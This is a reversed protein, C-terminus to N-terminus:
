WGYNFLNLQNSMLISKRIRPKRPLRRFRQLRENPFYISITEDENPMRDGYRIIQRPELQRLMEEYGKLWLYKSLNYGRIATCNVAIISHKPIGAFSYSYSDPLSWTVNPIVNVGCSQWHVTLTRNRWANYYREDYTMDAYQSFDPGIVSDYQKLLPIYKDPNYWTCDFLRDAIYFHITGLHKKECRAANFGVLRTPAPGEYFEISPMKLSSTPKSAIDPMTQSLGSSHTEFKFCDIVASTSTSQSLAGSFASLHKLLLESNIQFKM